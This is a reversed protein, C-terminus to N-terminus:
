KLKFQSVLLPASSHLSKVYIVNISGEDVTVTARQGGGLASLEIKRDAPTPVRCVQFEKPLTTWTRLDSINVSAQLAATALKSVLWVTDSSQRATENLAYAVAAKTVTSVLTKTVIGPLENKFDLAIVSDMSAVLETRETAAGARVTLAPAYNGQFHLKPFAAGVYAVSTIIIPIDIRIQDRVPACGTEFIVYTAPALPQGQAALQASALDAKVFKNDPVFGTVREFSKRARELDSSGQGCALFFLGDVYVAFPNVYDGYAKIQNLEGYQAAMAGKFQPNAEARNVRDSVRVRKQKEIQAIEEKTKDIRKKNEEVADLQREYARRIEVRAKDPQGLALFNLAKYINLMIRDYARGRYPLNAQNSLLAGAENGLKVKAAEDYKAIRAEAQDFAALSNTYHGRARLVAGEELRWIVTDKGTENKRGLARAEREASALDAQRWYQHIKNQEQYTTCGTLVAAALAAALWPFFRRRNDHTM